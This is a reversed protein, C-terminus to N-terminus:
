VLFFVRLVGDKLVLKALAEATLRKMFSCVSRRKLTLAMGMMWDSISLSVAWTAWFDLVRAFPALREVMMGSSMM